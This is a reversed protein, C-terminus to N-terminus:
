LGGGGGLNTRIKGKMLRDDARTCDVTPPSGGLTRARIRTLRRRSPYMDGTGRWKKWASAWTGGSSKERM